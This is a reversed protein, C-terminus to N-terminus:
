ASPQETSEIASDRLVECVDDLDGEFFTVEVENEDFKFLVDYMPEFNYVSSIGMSEIVGKAGQPVIQEYEEGTDEDRTYITLEQKSTVKDDFDYKYKM